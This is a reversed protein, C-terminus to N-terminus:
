KAGTLATIVYSTIAYAGFIVILGIVSWILIEKGKEVKESNGMATLWRFGGWMIMLLAISGVIGLAAKIVNGIILQVCQQGSLASTGKGCFTLPNELTVNTGSSPTTSTNTPTVAGSCVGGTAISACPTTCDADSSCTQDKVTHSADNCTCAAQVPAPAFSFALVLTMAAVLGYKFTAPAKTM